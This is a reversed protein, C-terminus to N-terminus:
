GGYGILSAGKERRVRTVSAEIQRGDLYVNVEQAGGSNTGRMAASVAAYVGEYVADQMQQVNMVGTRGGGANALIEPGREGAWILSGM